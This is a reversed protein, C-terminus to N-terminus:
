STCALRWKPKLKAQELAEMFSIWWLNAICRRWFSLIVEWLNRIESNGNGLLGRIKELVRGGVVVCIYLIHIWFQLCISIMKLKCICFFKCLVWALLCVRHVHQFLIEFSVKQPYAWGCELHHFEQQNQEMLHNFGNSPDDVLKYIRDYFVLLEKPYGPGTM